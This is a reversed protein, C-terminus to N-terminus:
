QDIDRVETAFTVTVQKRVPLGNGDRAPPMHAGAPCTDDAPFGPGSEEIVRCDTVSGDREVIFSFSLKRNELLPQGFDEGADEPIQWAVRTSWTSVVPKGDPDLAPTFMGREEILACATADLVASGSTEM